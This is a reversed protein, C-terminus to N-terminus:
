PDHLELFKYFEEQVQEFPMMERHRLETELADIQLFLPNKSKKSKEPAVISGDAETNNFRVSKTVKSTKSGDSEDGESGSGSGSGSEDGSTKGSSKGTKSSKTKKSKSKKTSAKSKSVGSKSESGSGSEDGSGSDSGSGSKDTKETKETRSKKTGTGDDSGSDSGSGSESESGKEGKEKDYVKKLEKIRKKLDDAKENNLEIAIKGLAEEFQEFKLPIHRNDSTRKFVEIVKKKNLTIGFDKTFILFEGLDIESRKQMIKDFEMGQPLHQMAYFAFIERLGAERAKIVASDITTGIAM